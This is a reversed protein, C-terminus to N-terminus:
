SIGDPAYKAAIAEAIRMGVINEDKEVAADYRQGGIPTVAAKEKKMRM